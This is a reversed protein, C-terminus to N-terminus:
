AKVLTRAAGSAVTRGRTDYVTAQADQGRIIRLAQEIGRLSLAVLGANVDNRERCERASETLAAWLQGLRGSPDAGTLERALGEQDTPLGCATLLRAREGEMQEIRGLLRQKAEIRQGLDPNRQLTIAERERELERALDRTLELEVQLLEALRALAHAAADNM